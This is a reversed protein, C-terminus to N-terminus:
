EKVLSDKLWALPTALPAPDRRAQEASSSSKMWNRVVVALSEKKYVIVDRGKTEVVAHISQIM